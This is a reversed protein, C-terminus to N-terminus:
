GCEGGTCAICGYASLERSLRVQRVKGGGQRAPPAEVKVTQLRPTMDVGLDAPSMKKIPKKKAQGVNKLINRRSIRLLWASDTRVKMINPLSAYRPENLRLDTTIIAPLPMSLTELGGDIERAVTISKASTDLDVKSAFNAQPWSLLGALVGGVQSSDDDIAQKGMIIIDPSEKEVVAKLCKAISLPEMSAGDVKEDKLEIHIGDDAGMALATRIVDVTKAPGLSVVTIKEIADKLKERLRVAEEM